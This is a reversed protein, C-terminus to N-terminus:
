IPLGLSHTPVGEFIYEAGREMGVLLARVVHVDHEELEKKVNRLTQGSSILDDVFCVREINSGDLGEITHSSHCHALDGPKRVVILPVGLWARLPWGYAQGSTGVVVIAEFNCPMNRQVWEGVVKVNHQYMETLHLTNYLYSCTV